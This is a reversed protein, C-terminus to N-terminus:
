ISSAGDLFGVNKIKTTNLELEKRIKSDNIDKKFLTINLHLKEALSIFVATDAFYKSEVIFKKMEWFKGQRAACEAAM